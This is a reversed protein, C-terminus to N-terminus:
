LVGMAELSKKCQDCWHGMGGDEIYARRVDWNECQPCKMRGERKMQAEVSTLEEWLEAKRAEIQKDVEDPDLEERCFRCKKAEFKIIEACAPCKKTESNLPIDDPSTWVPESPHSGSIATSPKANSDAATQEGNKFIFFLGGVIVGVGLFGVLAQFPKLSPYGGFGRRLLYFFIIASVIVGGWVVIKQSKNM